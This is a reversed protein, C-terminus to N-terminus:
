AVALEAPMSKGEVRWGEVPLEINGNVWAGLLREIVESLNMGERLAKVQAETKIIEDLVITTRAREAM